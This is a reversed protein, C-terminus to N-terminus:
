NLNNKLDALDCSHTYNNLGFKTHTLDDSRFACRCRSGVPRGFAVPPDAQGPHWTKERSFVSRSRNLCRKLRPPGNPDKDIRLM